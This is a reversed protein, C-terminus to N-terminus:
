KDAVNVSSLLFDSVALFYPLVKAVHQSSMMQTLVKLPTEGVLHESHETIALAHVIALFAEFLDEHQQELYVECLYDLYVQQIHITEKLNAVMLDGYSLPIVDHLM